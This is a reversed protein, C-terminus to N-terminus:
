DFSINFNEWKINLLNLGVWLLNDESFICRSSILTPFHSYPTKM